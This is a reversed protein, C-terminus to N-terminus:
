GNTIDIFRWKRLLLNKITQFLLYLLLISVIAWAYTFEITLILISRFLLYLLGIPAGLVELLFIFKGYNNLKKLQKKLPLGNEMKKYIEWSPVFGSFALYFFLIIILFFIFVLIDQILIM